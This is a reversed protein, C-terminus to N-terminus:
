VTIPNQFVIGAVVMGSDRVAPSVVRRQMALPTSWKHNM